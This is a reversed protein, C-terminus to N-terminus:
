KYKLYYDHKKKNEADLTKKVKSLLLVKIDIEQLRLKKTSQKQVHLLNKTTNWEM